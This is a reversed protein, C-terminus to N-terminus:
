PCPVKEAGLIELVKDVVGEVRWDAKVMFFSPGLDAINRIQADEDASLNTLVVVPVCKGWDDKARVQQLMEWGNMIPMLIDLLILDPRERLAMELGSIGNKAEIVALGAGSLMTHLAGLMAEDDEVVLVKKKGSEKTVIM